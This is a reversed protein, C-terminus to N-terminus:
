HKGYENYDDWFECSNTQNIWDPDKYEVLDTSLYLLGGSEFNRWEPLDLNDTYQSLNGPIGSFDNVDGNRIFNSFYTQETIALSFQKPSIPVEQFYDHLGLFYPMDSGHCAMFGCRAYQTGENAPVFGAPENFYYFWSTANSNRKVWNRQACTYLFDRFVLNMADRGDCEHEDTRNPYFRDCDATWPYNALIPTIEDVISDRQDVFVYSLILDYYGRALKEPLIGRQSGFLKHSKTEFEDGTSGIVVPKNFNSNFPLTTVIVNDLIPAFGYSWAIVPVNERKAQNLNSFQMDIRAKDACQYLEYTRLDKMCDVDSIACGCAEFVVDTIFQKSSPKDLLTTGVPPSFLIAQHFYNQHAGPETLHVIAETAGPGIGGITIRNKDGGFYEIFDKIFRLATRQDSLGFNGTSTAGNYDAEVGMFGFAGVRFNVGVVIIDANRVLGYADAVVFESSGRSFTGGHM